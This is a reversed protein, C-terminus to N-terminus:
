ARGETKAGDAAFAGVQLAEDIGYPYRQRAM